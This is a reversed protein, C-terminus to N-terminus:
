FIFRKRKYTSDHPRKIFGACLVILILLIIGFIIKSNNNKKNKDM